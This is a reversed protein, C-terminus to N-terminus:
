SGAESAEVLVEYQDAMGRDFLLYSCSSSPRSSLLGACSVGWSRALTKRPRGTSGTAGCASLEAMAKFRIM